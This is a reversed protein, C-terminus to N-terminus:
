WLTSKQEGNNSNLGDASGPGMNGTPYDGDGPSGSGNTNFASM